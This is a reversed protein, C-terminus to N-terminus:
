KTRRAHGSGSFLLRGHRTSPQRTTSPGPVRIPAAGSRTLCRSTCARLSTSGPKLVRLTDVRLLALKVSSTPVFNADTVHLTGNPYRTFEYLPQYYLTLDVRVITGKRVSLRHTSYLSPTRQGDTTHAYVVMTAPSVQNMTGVIWRSGTVNASLRRYARIVASRDRVTRIQSTPDTFMLSSRETLTVRAAFLTRLGSFSGTVLAHNLAAFYSQTLAAVRSRNATPTSVRQSALAPSPVTPTATLLLIGLGLSLAIRRSM